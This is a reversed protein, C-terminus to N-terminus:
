RFIPAHETLCQADRNPIAIARHNIFAIRFSPERSHGAFIANQDATAAATAHGNASKHRGRRRVGGRQQEVRAAHVRQIRGYNAGQEVLPLRNIRNIQETHPAIDSLLIRLLWAAATRKEIRKVSRVIGLAHAINQQRQAM